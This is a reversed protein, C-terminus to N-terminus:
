EFTVKVDKGLAKMIRFYADYTLKRKGTEYESIHPQPIGTLKSVDKQFLGLDKRTKKILDIRQKNM